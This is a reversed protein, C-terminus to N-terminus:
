LLPETFSKTRNRPSFFPHLRKQTPESTTSLPPNAAELDTSNQSLLFDCEKLDTTPSHQLKPPSTIPSMPDWEKQILPTDPPTLTLDECM